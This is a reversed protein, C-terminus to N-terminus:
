TIRIACKKNVVGERALEAGIQSSTNAYVPNALLLAETAYSVAVYMRNKDVGRKALQAIDKVINMYINDVTGYVGFKTNKNILGITEQNEITGQIKGPEGKEGKAINLIRTTVFEGSSLHILKETDIDLLGHGLAAFGGSNADYFTVTGFEQQM